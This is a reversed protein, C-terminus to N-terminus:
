HEREVHVSHVPAHHHSAGLEHLKHHLRHHALELAARLRSHRAADSKPALTDMYAISGEIQALVSVADATAFIPKEGVNVYVASTHAAIDAERGAVSGRVRAAIWCSETIRLSLRGNCSLEGCRVEDAVAGNRILELRTPPISVSEIRWDISVTGGSHPLSITSGPRRGEVTMEVLPGVTIFTDGSRVADMWNRYTFDRQGLQVYTRSGGLLAAADMKDSGAVLPLHYGINLYRYWDALGFASIQATRPNFSMMEIADVLGLVIDAAREAQPNPAHPMVVLGGQRRCREAWDAMTAELVDGIAAENPGGCSLPNIIDGEYGLLSIHGLVQMRNETGVRVLFEGDGGFDKAGFTTRGDFDGVNTFLEGWQAALLNVVNVGEAKGELLATQPSLFHVHTDSSVWGQERWRLVRDLEFTLNETTPTVEASCRLPRVELGRSIEVFVPGIPLDAECSGDVYAYQNLENAFEGAFDEFRGTNVKRHHGKPPLYEGHAGHIHLRAAVRSGSGKEVIRIKVSRTAPEIPVVELSTSGVNGAAELSRLDCVHLHGDDSRLYLMADPHASYEIIVETESRVPQVDQKAGLWDARSYQLVARASVVTGLDMGIQEGRDDVDLEGLKNLQVGAPLQMKLKRRGQLRLPHQTLRTTTVAFILSVEQQARLSVAALEKEPHPNPLAYLWLNEGQRDMRGSQTRVQGQFFSTDPARGLTFDEDISAHVLPARLPLAAFASASWSIHNQQIAFRRLVPVEVESSDAYRLAYTSVRDGLSNGEVPLTAPGIEGFGQPSASPQDAAVQVFLVYSALRPQLAIVIPPEGPRLALVDPGTEDGFLFPMGRHTQLGRLSDIWGTDGPRNGFGEDLNSRRANFYRRLDVPTFHPSSPTKM